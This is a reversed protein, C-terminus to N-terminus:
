QLTTRPATYMPSPPSTYSQSLRAAPIWYVRSSTPRRPSLFTKNSCIDGRGGTGYENKLRRSVPERRAVPRKVRLFYLFFFRFECVGTTTTTTQPSPQDRSRIYGNNAPSRSGVIKAINNKGSSIILPIVSNYDSYLITIILSLHVAAVVVVVLVLRAMQNHLQKTKGYM